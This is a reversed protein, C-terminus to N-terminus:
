ITMMMRSMTMPMKITMLIMKMRRKRLRRRMSNDRASRKRNSPSSFLILKRTNLSFCLSFLFRFIEYSLRLSSSFATDRRMESVVVLAFRRLLSEISPFELGCKRCKSRQEIRQLYSFSLNISLSRPLTESNDGLFIIQKDIEDLENNMEKVENMINSKVNQLDFCISMSRKM